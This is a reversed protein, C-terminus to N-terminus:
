SVRKVRVMWRARSSRRWRRWVGSGAGEFEEAAAAVGEIGQQLNKVVIGHPKEALTGVEAAARQLDDRGRLRLLDM